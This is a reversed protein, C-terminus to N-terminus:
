KWVMLYQLFTKKPPRVLVFCDTHAHCHRVNNDLAVHYKEVALALREDQRAIGQATTWDTGQGISYNLSLDFTITSANELMAEFAEYSKAEAAVRLAESNVFIAQPTITGYLTKCLDAVNDRAAAMLREKDSQQVSETPLTM